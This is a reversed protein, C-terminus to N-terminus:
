LVFMRLIDYLREIKSGQAVGMETYGHEVDLSLFGFEKKVINAFSVASGHM